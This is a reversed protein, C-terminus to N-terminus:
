LAVGEVARNRTVKIMFAKTNLAGPKLGLGFEFQAQAKIQAENQNRARVSVSMRAYHCVYDRM